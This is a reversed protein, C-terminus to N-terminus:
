QNRNIIKVKFILDSKKILQKLVYKISYNLEIQVM